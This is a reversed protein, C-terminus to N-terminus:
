ASQAIADIADAPEAHVACGQSELWAKQDATLIGCLVLHAASPQARLDAICAQLLPWVGPASGAAALFVALHGYIGCTAADRLARVLAAPQSFVQGTVDIPNITSAFPIADKLRRAADDPLPPLALSLEEARDAMM